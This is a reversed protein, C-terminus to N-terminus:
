SVTEDTHTEDRLHQQALRLQQRTNRGALVPALAVYALIIIAIAYAPLIFAAHPGNLWDFNM